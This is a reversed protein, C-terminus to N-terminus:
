QDPTRFIVKSAVEVKHAADHLASRWLGPVHVLILTTEKPREHACFVNLSRGGPHRRHGINLGRGGRSIGFETIQLIGDDFDTVSGSEVGHQALAKRAEDLIALEEPRAPRM